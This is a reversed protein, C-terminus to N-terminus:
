DSGPLGDDADDVQLSGIHEPEGAHMAAHVDWESLLHRVAAHFRETSSGRSTDGFHHRAWHKLREQSEDSTLVRELIPVATGADTSLLWEADGLYGGEDIEALPSEPRTIVVPKGTALRDYVMASIDTVAIDAAAESGTGLAGAGRGLDVM